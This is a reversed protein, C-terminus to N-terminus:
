ITTVSIYHLVPTNSHSYSMSVIKIRQCDSFCDTVVKWDYSWLTQFSLIVNKWRRHTYSVESGTIFLELDSPNIDVASLLSSVDQQLRLYNAARINNHQRYYQLLEKIMLLLSDQKTADWKCLSQFLVFVKKKRKKVGCSLEHNSHQFNWM